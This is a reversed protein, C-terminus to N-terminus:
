FFKSKDKIVYRKKLIDGGESNRVVKDVLDIIGERKLRGLM